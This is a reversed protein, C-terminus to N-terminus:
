ERLVAALNLLFILNDPDLKEARHMFELGREHDGRQHLLLGYYHWADPFRPYLAMLRRYHSEAQDSDGQEQAATAESMLRVLLPQQTTDSASM